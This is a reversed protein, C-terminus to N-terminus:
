PQILQYLMDVSLRKVSLLVRWLKNVWVLPNFMKCQKNVLVSIAM